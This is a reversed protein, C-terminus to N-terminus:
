RVASRRGPFRSLPALHALSISQGGYQSSAVQAIIQTAINCATSFSHPKEILTGSIVTGNQLMDELNVLDCNHMHQAYYDMDHFHILGKEHAEVIDPPLLLRRSIDKSVEGAMYDRQVSNVTPNKNSNEQKVEENNCEILSLIQNDTTNSQRVLNRTYRYRIYRKAVEFAGHAMIESEVLEQIEEVSLARNMQACHEEVSVAIERIQEPTLERSNEDANNAKTVAAM